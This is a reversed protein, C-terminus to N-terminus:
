KPMGLINGIINQKEKDVTRNKDDENIKNKNIDNGTNNISFGSNSIVKALNNIADAIENRDKVKKMDSIILDKVYASFSLKNDDIFKIIEVDNENNETFSVPKIIPKKPEKKVM